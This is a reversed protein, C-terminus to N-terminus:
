LTRRVAMYGLFLNHGSGHFPIIVVFHDNYRRMSTGANVALIWACYVYRPRLGHYLTRSAILLSAQSLSLNGDHKCSHFDPGTEPLRAFARSRSSACRLRAGASCYNQIRHDQFLKAMSAHVFVRIHRLSAPSHVRALHLAACDLGQPAAIRCGTTM